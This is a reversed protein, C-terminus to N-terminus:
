AQRELYMLRFSQSPKVHPACLIFDQTHSIGWESIHTILIEASRGQPAFFGFLFYLVPLSNAILNKESRDQPAFFNSYFIIFNNYFNEGLPGAPCFDFTTYKNDVNGGIPGAPCLFDYFEKCYSFIRRAASCPLFECINLNWLANVLDSTLNWNEFVNVLDAPFNWGTGDKKSM